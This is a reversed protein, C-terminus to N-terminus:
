PKCYGAREMERIGEKHIKGLPAGMRQGSSDKFVSSVCTFPEPSSWTQIGEECPYRCASPSQEGTVDTGTFRASLAQRPYSARQGTGREMQFQHM